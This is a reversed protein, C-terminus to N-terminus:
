NSDSDDDDDLAIIVGGAVVAAALVLGVISGPAALESSKGKTATAARSVSLSSAPNALAPPAALAVACGAAILTKLKM